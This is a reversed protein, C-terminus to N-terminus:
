RPSSTGTRASKETSLCLMVATQGSLRRVLGATRAKRARSVSTKHAKLACVGRRLRPVLSLFGIEEHPHIAIATVRRPFKITDRLHLGIKPKIECRNPALMAARYDEVMGHIVSPNLVASVVGDYAEPSMLDPDLEYWALPDASIAREPKEPQAFFFWHYWDHAFKWNAREMHEFIPLCDVVILHRVADPWDMAMRFASYSGRDHGVVSFSGFGLYRMLEVLAKAKERKSSHWSDPTDPPIYSQGFGPLDPCIVTLSSALREAVHGWTM